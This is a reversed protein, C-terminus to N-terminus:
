GATIACPVCLRRLRRLLRDRRRGAPQPHPGDADRPHRGDLCVLRQPLDLALPPERRKRPRKAQCKLFPQLSTVAPNSVGAGGM